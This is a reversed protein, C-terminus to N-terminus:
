FSTDLLFWHYASYFNLYDKEAVTKLTIKQTSKTEKFFSRAQFHGSIAIHLSAQFFLMFNNFIGVKISLKDRSFKFSSRYFIIENNTKKKLFFLFKM